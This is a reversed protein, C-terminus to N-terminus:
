RVQGCRQDVPKEAVPVSVVQVPRDSMATATDLQCRVLTTLVDGASQMGETGRQDVPELVVSPPEVEVFRDLGAFSGQGPGVWGGLVSKGAAVQAM